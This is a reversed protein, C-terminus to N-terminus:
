KYYCWGSWPIQQKEFTKGIILPRQPFVPLKWQHPPELGQFTSNKRVFGHLARKKGWCIIEKSFTAHNMFPVFVNIALYVIYRSKQKEEDVLKTTTPSSSKVLVAKIGILNNSQFAGYKLLPTQKFLLWVLWALWAPFFVCVMM